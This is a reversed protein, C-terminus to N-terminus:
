RGQDRDRADARLACRRQTPARRHPAARHRPGAGLCGVRRHRRQHSVRSANAPHCPRNRARRDTQLSQRREPRRSARARGGVSARRSAGGAFLERAARAGASYGTAPTRDVGRRVPNPAIRWDLDRRFRYRWLRHTVGDPKLIEISTTKHFPGNEGTLHDDLLDILEDPHWDAAVAVAEATFTSGEISAYALIERVRDVLTPDNGLLRALQANLRDGAEAFTREASGALQWRGSGDQLIAGRREWGEWLGAIEGADGETIQWVASLLEPASPGIWRAIEERALPRWSWWAGIGRGLLSRAVVRAGPEGEGPTAALAPPGDIGLVIVLPLEREVEDAFSLLLDTWWGGDAQDADNILCVLPHEPAEEAAIRLLGPVLAYLEPASRDDRVRELYQFGAVSITVLQGILVGAFGFLAALGAVNNVLAAAEPSVESSGGTAAPGYRGDTFAGTLTRAGRRDRQTQFWRARESSRGGALFVVRGRRTERAAQALGALEVQLEAELPSPGLAM